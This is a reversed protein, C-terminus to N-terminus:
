TSPKATEPWRPVLSWRLMDIQREVVHLKNSRSSSHIPPLRAAEVNQDRLAHILDNILPTSCTTVPPQPVGCLSPVSM